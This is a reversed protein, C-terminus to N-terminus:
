SPTFRWLPVSVCLLWGSNYSAEVSALIQEVIAFSFRLTQLTYDTDPGSNSHTRPLCTAASVLRADNRVRSQPHPIGGDKTPLFLSEESRESLRGLSREAFRLETGRHRRPRGIKEEIKQLRNARCCNNGDSRRSFKPWRLTFQSVQQRIGARSIDLQSRHLFDYSRGAPKGCRM